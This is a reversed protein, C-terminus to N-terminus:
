TEHFSNYMLLHHLGKLVIDADAFITNKIKKILFDADGGTLIITFNGYVRSFADIQAQVEAVIGMEAGAQMSGETTTGALPASGQPEFLPLKTTFLHMAKYRMARGPSIAGGHHHGDASIYDYTICSGADIIFVPSKPHTLLAGALAARRDVGLDQISNYATTFPYKTSADIYHIHCSKPLKALLRKSTPGVAGILIKAFPNSKHFANWQAATWDDCIGSNKLAQNEFYGYKIRTNGVDLVLHKATNM